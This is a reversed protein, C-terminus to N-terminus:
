ISVNHTVLDLFLSWFNLMVIKTCFIYLLKEKSQFPYRLHAMVMLVMVNCYAKSRLIPNPFLFLSNSSFMFDSSLTSKNLIFIDM